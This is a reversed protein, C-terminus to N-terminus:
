DFGCKKLIRMSAKNHPKVISAVINYRDKTMVGLTMNLAITM